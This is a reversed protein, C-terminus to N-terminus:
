LISTVYYFSSYYLLQLILPLVAGATEVYLPIANNAYYFVFYAQLYYSLLNSM